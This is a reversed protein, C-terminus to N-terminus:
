PHAATHQPQSEVPPAKSGARANQDRPEVQIPPVAMATRPHSTVILFRAWLLLGFAMLVCGLMMGRRSLTRSISARVLKPESQPSSDM